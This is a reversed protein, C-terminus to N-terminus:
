QEEELVAKDGAVTGAPPQLSGDGGELAGPEPGQDAPGEEPEQDAPVEEPAQDAPVEEPAERAVAVEQTDLGISPEDDESRDTIVTCEGPLSAATFVLEDCRLVDYANLEDVLLVHVWPLNAFSREAVVDQRDLVVLVRGTLDLKSLSAVAQKTKPRQLGWSNVVTVQGGKARDSLASALALRIMKKPTRQRYDRPKPGHAIGGGVFQPARTSGQRARGTGKQRFPKAGGGRVEGRTKTSHTGSRAGALQATIVQHLVAAHPEIGFLQPDLEVKGVQGGDASRLPVEVSSLQRPARKVPSPEGISATVQSM